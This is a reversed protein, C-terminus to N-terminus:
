DHCVLYWGAPEFYHWQESYRTDDPTSQHVMILDPEAYLVGPQKSVTEALAHMESVHKHLGPDVVNAGSASMRTSLIRGGAAQALMPDNAAKAPDVPSAYKVVLRNTKEAPTTKEAAYGCVAAFLGCLSFTCSTFLSKM